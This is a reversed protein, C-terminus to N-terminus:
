QYWSAPPNMRTVLCTNVAWPSSGKFSGDSNVGNTSSWHPTQGPRLAYGGSQYMPWPSSLLYTHAVVVCNLKSVANKAFAIGTSGTFVNCARIWFVSSPTTKKILATHFADLDISVHNICPRGPAGHGWFQIQSIITGAPIAELSDYVAQWSSASIVKDFGGLYQGAAWIYSLSGQTNDYIMVRM